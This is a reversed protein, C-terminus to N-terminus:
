CFFFACESLYFLSSLMLAILLLRFLYLKDASYHASSLCIPYNTNTKTDTTTTAPNVLLENYKDGRVFAFIHGHMFLLPLVFFFAFHSLYKACELELTPGAFHHLIDDATTHESTATCWHYTYLRSHVSSENPQIANININIAYKSLLRSLFLTLLILDPHHPCMHSICLWNLSHAHTCSNVNSFQFHKKFGSASAYLNRIVLNENCCQFAESRIHQSYPRSECSHQAALISTHYNPHHAGRNAGSVISWIFRGVNLYILSLTHSNKIFMKGFANM